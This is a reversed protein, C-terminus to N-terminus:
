FVNDLKYMLMSAFALKRLADEKSIVENAHAKPNRIGLMAGAFMYRYGDQIDKETQNQLQTFHLVPQGNNNSFANMMLNAGDMEPRGTAVYFKKVRNNIEKFAAEVAEAYFNAEFLLKSTTIIQPHMIRWIDVHENTTNNSQEMSMIGLTEDIMDIIHARVSHGLGYPVDFIADLPDTNYCRGGLAPPACIQMTKNTGYENTVKRIIPLLRNLKSRSEETGNGEQILAMEARFVELAEIYDQKSLNM